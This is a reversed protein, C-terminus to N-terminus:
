VMFVVGLLALAISVAVTNKVGSSAVRDESKITYFSEDGDQAVSPDVNTFGKWEISVVEDLDKKLAGNEYLDKIMPGLTQAIRGDVIMMMKKKQDDHHPGPKNSGSEAAAAAAAKVLDATISGQVNFCKTTPKKEVKKKEEREKGPTASTGPKEKGPAPKRSCEGHVHDEPASSLGHWDLSDKSGSTGCGLLADVLQRQLQKEVSSVVERPPHKSDGKTKVVIEYDFRIEQVSSSNGADNKCVASESRIRGNSDKEQFVAVSPSASPASVGNEFFTNKNKKKNDKKDDKKNALPEKQPPVEEQLSRGRVAESSKVLSLLFIAVLLLKM